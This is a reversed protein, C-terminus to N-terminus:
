LRGKSLPVGERQPLALWHLPAPAHQSGPLRQHHPLGTKLRGSVVLPGGTHAVGGRSFRSSVFWVTQAQIPSNLPGTEHVSFFTLYLSWGFCKLRCSTFGQIRVCVEVWVSRVSWLILFGHIQALGFVAVAACPCWCSRIHYRLWAPRQTSWDFIIPSIASFIWKPCRTALESTFIKDLITEPVFSQTNVRGGDRSLSPCVCSKKPTFRHTNTTSSRLGPGGPLATAM